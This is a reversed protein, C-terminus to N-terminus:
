ELRLIEKAMLVFEGPNDPTFRLQKFFGNRRKLLVHEFLDSLDLKLVTFTWRLTQFPQESRISVIDERMIVFTRSLFPFRCTLVIRDGYIRYENRM